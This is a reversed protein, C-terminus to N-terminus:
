ILALDPSLEWCLSPSAEANETFGIVRMDEQGNIIKTLADRLLTQEEVIFFNIM